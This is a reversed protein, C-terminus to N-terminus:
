GYIILYIGGVTAAIIIITIFVRKAIKCIKQVRQNNDIKKLGHDMFLDGTIDFVFELVAELMETM